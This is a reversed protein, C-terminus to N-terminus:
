SWDLFSLARCVRFTLAGYFLIAQSVATEFSFPLFVNPLLRVLESEHWWSAARQMRAQVIEQQHAM